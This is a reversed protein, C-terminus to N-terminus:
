SKLAASAINASQHEAVDSCTDNHRLPEALSQLFHTQVSLCGGRLNKNQTSLNYGERWNQINKHPDHRSRGQCTRYRHAGELSYLHDACICVWGHDLSAPQSQLCSLARDGFLDLQCGWMGWAKSPNPTLLGHFKRSATKWAAARVIFRRM